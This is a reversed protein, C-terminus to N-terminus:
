ARAGKGVVRRSAAAASGSRPPPPQQYAYPNLQFGSTLGLGQAGQSGASSGSYNPAPPWMQQGQNYNGYQPVTYPTPANAQGIQQGAQGGAAAGAPGGFYAGAATGATQLAGTKMAADAAQQASIGQIQSGLNAQKGGIHTNDNAMTRQTKAQSAGRTSDNMQQQLGYTKNSIDGREGRFNQDRGLQRDSASEYDAISAGYDQKAQRGQNYATDTRNFGQQLGQEGLDAQRGLGLERQKTASDLGLNQQAINGQIGQDRLSQLRRQTQAYAAGAQAQNAGMMAQLQGGTMPVNGLQGAMNQMGLAGLVGVDALGKKGENQAQNEYQSQIDAGHTNYALRTNGAETNYQDREDQGQKAYLARTQTAVPNNPDMADKLSMASNSNTKAKEMLDKLRPQTQNTYTSTADKQSQEIEKRVKTLDTQYRNVNGSMSGLYDTDAQDLKAISGKNAEYQKNETDEMQRALEAAKDAKHSKTAQAAGILDGQIVKGFVTDKGTIQNTIPDTISRTPNAITKFAEVPKWPSPQEDKKPNTIANYYDRLGM